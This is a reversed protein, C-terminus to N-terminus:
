RRRRAGGKKSAAQQKQPDEKQAEKEVMDFTKSNLPLSHYPKMDVGWDKEADRKMHVLAPEAKSANSDFHAHVIWPKYQEGQPGPKIFITYRDLLDNEKGEARNQRHQFDRKVSKVEGEKWLSLLDNENPNQMKRSHIKQANRVQTQLSEVGDRDKKLRKLYNEVVAKSNEGPTDKDQAPMVALEGVIEALQNIAVSQHYSARKLVDIKKDFRTMYDDGSTDIAEVEARTRTFSQLSKDAIRGAKEMLKGTKDLATTQGAATAPTLQALAPEEYDRIWHARDDKFYSGTVEGKGGLRELRELKGEQKIQGIVLGDATEYMDQPLISQTQSRQRRAQANPPLYSERDELEQLKGARFQVVRKHSSITAAIAEALAKLSPIMREDKVIGELKEYEKISTECSRLLKELQNLVQSALQSLVSLEERSWKETSSKGQPAKANRLKKELEDLAELGKHANSHDCSVWFNTLDLWNQLNENEQSRNSHNALLMLLRLSEVVSNAVYFFSFETHIEMGRALPKQIEQIFENRKDKDNLIRLNKWDLLAECEEITNAQKEATGKCHTFLSGLRAIMKEVDELVGASVDTECMEEELVAQREQLISLKRFAIELDIESLINLASIKETHLHALLWKTHAEIYNLDHKGEKALVLGANVIGAKAGEQLDDFQNLWAKATDTKDPADQNYNGIEKQLGERVGSLKEIYENLKQEHQQNGYIEKLELFQEIAKNKFDVVRNRLLLLPVHGHRRLKDLWILAKERNEALCQERLQKAKAKGKPLHSSSPASSMSSASDQQAAPPSAPRADQLVQIPLPMPSREGAGLKKPM